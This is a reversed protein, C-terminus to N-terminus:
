VHQARRSRQISVLTMVTFFLLYFVMVIVLPYHHLSQRPRYSLSEFLEPELKNIEAYAVELQDRDLAQYTAGGTLDSMRELTEIDLAEEGITAPDGIAINYLTVGREKAIKAAEIPPMRSGTDNGDTLMILVRNEVESREFLKIALGIADGMMTSPGAMGVETENLLTLWTEHDETFPTQLYPANGFVILGLRDQERSTVFDSLVQKLAILRDVVEGDELTFDKATMSGSLDVAIMLDRASRNQTIPKGVWEPKAIAAIVLLWTVLLWLKQVWLKHIIVSGIGPEKESVNVLRKFFPVRVSDKSSKYVPLIFYVLLPLPLLALTWPHIWEIM